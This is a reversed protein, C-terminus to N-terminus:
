IREMERPRRAAIKQKWQNVARRFANPNRIRGDSLYSDMFLSRLPEDMFGDPLSFLFAGLDKAAPRNGHTRIKMRHLDIMGLEFGDPAAPTPIRYVHWIYSDPLAIGAAHIKQFFLGLRVVLGQRGSTDLRAWHESLYDPLCPGNIQETMFFSQREIGCCSRVGYCVPHYTEIGNDLLIRANRWEAEAQSCLTGFSWVTSLMDKLHPKIFRKMYFTRMRGNDELNLVIVNRKANENITRGEGYNFFDEFRYLGHSAFFVGRDKEFVVKDM